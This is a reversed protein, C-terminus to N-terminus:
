VSALSNVMQIEIDQHDADYFAQAEITQKIYDQGSVNPLPIKTIKCSNLYIEAKYTDGTSGIAVGTELLAYISITDNVLFKSLFTPDTYALDLNVTVTRRKHIVPIHAFYFGITELLGMGNNMSIKLKEVGPIETGTKGGIFARVKTAIFPQIASESPKTPTDSGAIDLDSTTGPFVGVSTFNISKASGKADTYGYLTPSAPLTGPYHTTSDIQFICIPRRYSDVLAPMAAVADNIAQQLAAATAYTADPIAVHVSAGGNVIVTMYAGSTTRPFTLPGGGVDGHIGHVPASGKQDYGHMGAFAMTLQVPNGKDIELDFSTPYCGVLNMQSLDEYFTFALPVNPVTDQGLFKHANSGAVATQTAVSTGTPTITLTFYETGHLYIGLSHDGADVYSATVVSTTVANIAALLTETDDAKVGTTSLPITTESNVKFNITQSSNDTTLVVEVKLYASTVSGFVSKLLGITQEPYLPTQANGAVAHMGEFRYGIPEQMGPTLVPIPQWKVDQKLGFSKQVIFSQPDKHVLPDDQISFGAWAQTGRGVLPISM